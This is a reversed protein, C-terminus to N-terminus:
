RRMSSRLSASSLRSYSGPAGRGLTRASERATGAGDALGGRRRRIGARKCPLRPRARGGRFGGCPVCFTSAGSRGRTTGVAVVWGDGKAPLVVGPHGCSKTPIACSHMLRSSARLRQGRAPTNACTRFSAPRMEVQSCINGPTVYPRVPPVSLSTAVVRARKDSSALRNSAPEAPRRKLSPDLRDRTRTTTRTSARRM